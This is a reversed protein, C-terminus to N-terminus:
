CPYPAVDPDGPDACATGAPTATLVTGDLSWRWTRVERREPPSAPDVVVWSGLGQEDVWTSAEVYTGLGLGLPVRGPRGAPVARQLAGDVWTLVVLAAGDGGASSRLLLEQGPAGGIEAPPLVTPPYAPDLQVSGREGAATRVEVTTPGPEDDADPGVLVRVRDPRGDGDVDADLAEALVLEVEPDVTPEPTSEETPETPEVSPSGAPPAPRAADDAGLVSPLVVAAAVVAAAAAAALVPVAGPFSRLPLVRASGQGSGRPEPVELPRLDGARVQEAEAALAAAVQQEFTTM